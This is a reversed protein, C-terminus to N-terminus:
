QLNLTISLGIAFNTLATGSGSSATAVLLLGSGAAYPGLSLGTAALTATQTVFIPNALTTFSYTNQITFVTPSGITSTFVSLSITTATTPVTGSAVLVVLNGYIASIVTSRTFTIIDQQSFQGLNSGITLVSPIGGVTSVSVPTLGLSDGTSPTGNSQTTIDPAVTQVLLTVPVQAGTPGTTGQPGTQGTPGIAGTPGTTGQPGTQGTPGTPGTQGTPGIAGTVGQPGIAGTPGTTGQIGTQGTPGIAGTPGTTGQPGTAGLEGIPGTPGTPGTPGSAGGPSGAPGTPGEPGTPGSPGNSGSTGNIGTAGTAGIYIKTGPGCPNPPLIPIFSQIQSFQPNM